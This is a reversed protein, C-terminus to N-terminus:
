ASMTRSQQEGPDRTTSDDVRQSASDGAYNDDVHARRGRSRWM